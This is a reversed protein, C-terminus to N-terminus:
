QKLESYIREVQLRTSEFSGENDIIHTAHAKKDNIPMQSCIRARAEAASIGDRAMLRGLQTEPRCWVLVVKDMRLHAGSEILLAADFLVVAQQDERSIERTLREEEEFIRPHVAAELRRRREPDRFIIDAVAKRDIGGGPQVVGPGFIGVVERYAPQGPEVAERALQDADIIRAGLERFMGSVTSKGSGIGGTLGVKVM